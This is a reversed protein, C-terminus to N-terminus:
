KALSWCDGRIQPWYDNAAEVVRLEHLNGTSEDKNNTKSDPNPVAAVQLPRDKTGTREGDPDDLDFDLDTNPMEDTVIVATSSSIYSTAIVEENLVLIAALAQLPQFHPLNDYPDYNITARFPSKYGSDNQNLCIFLRLLLTIANFRERLEPNQIPEPEPM